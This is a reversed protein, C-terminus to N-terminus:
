LKIVMSSLSSEISYTFLSLLAYKAVLNDSSKIFFVLNGHSPVTTKHYFQLLETYHARIVHAMKILSLYISLSLSIITIFTSKIIIRYKDRRMQELKRLIDVISWYIMYKQTNLPSKRWNVMRRRMKQLKRTKKLKEVGVCDSRVGVDVSGSWEWAWVTVRSKKFFM